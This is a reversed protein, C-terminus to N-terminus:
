INLQKKAAELELDVDDTVTSNIERPKVTELTRNGAALKVRNAIRLITDPDKVEEQIIEIFMRLMHESQPQETNTLEGTTEMWYKIANWDGSNIKKTFEAVVAPRVNALNEDALSDVLNKFQPDKLWAYYQTASVGLSDLKDEISRSDIMNMVVQAAAIQTPTLEERSHQRWPIGRDDLAKIVLRRKLYYNVSTQSATPHKRRLYATVEEITPVYSQMTWNLEYFNILTREAATLSNKIAWYQGKTVYGSM